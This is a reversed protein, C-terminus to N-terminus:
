GKYESLLCDVECQDIQFWEGKLRCDALRQHIEKEMDRYRDSIIYGYVTLEEPYGTQISGLRKYPNQYTQGIKFLSEHARIFYVFGADAPQESAGSRHYAAWLDFFAERAPECARSLHLDWADFTNAVSPACEDSRMDQLFDGAISDRIRRKMAWEYFTMM